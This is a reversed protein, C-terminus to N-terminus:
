SQFTMVQSLHIAHSSCLAIRKLWHHWEVSSTPREGRHLKVADKSKGRLAAVPVHAVNHGEYKVRISKLNECCGRLAAGRRSAM